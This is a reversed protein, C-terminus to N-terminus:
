EETCRSRKNGIGSATGAETFDSDPQVLHQEVGRETVVSAVPWDSGTVTMRYPEAGPPTTLLAKARVISSRKPTKLADGKGNRLKYMDAVDETNQPDEANAPVASTRVSENAADARHDSQRDQAPSNGSDTKRRAPMTLYVRSRVTPRPECQAQSQM